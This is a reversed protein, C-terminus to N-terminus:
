LFSTSKKPNMILILLILILELFIQFISSQGSGLFRFFNWLNKPNLFKLQYNILPYKSIVNNNISNIFFFMNNIQIM